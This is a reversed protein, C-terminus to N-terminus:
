RKNELSFGDQSDAAEVNTEGLLPMLVHEIIAKMAEPHKRLHKVLRRCVIWILVGIGMLMLLVTFLMLTLM